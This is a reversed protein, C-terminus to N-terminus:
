LAMMLYQVSCNLFKQLTYKTYKKFNFYKLIFYDTFDM